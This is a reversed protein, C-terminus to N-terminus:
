NMGEEEVRTTRDDDYGYQQEPHRNDPLSPWEPVDFNVKAAAADVESLWVRSERIHRHLLREVRQLHKHTNWSQDAILSLRALVEAHNGDRTPDVIPDVSARVGAIAKDQDSMREMVGKRGPVGPRSPEGFWDDLLYSVRKLLPRIRRALGIILLITTVGALIQGINIDLLWQGEPDAAAGLLFPPTVPDRDM